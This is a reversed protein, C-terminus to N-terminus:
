KYMNLSFLILKLEMDSIIVMWLCVGIAYSYNEYDRCFLFSIGKQGIM